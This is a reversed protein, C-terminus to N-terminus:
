RWAGAAKGGYRNHLLSPPGWHQGPCTRFIEDGGPNKKINEQVRYKTRVQEKTKITRCKAKTEKSVVCLVFMWAGPPIRVRLGLPRGAVARRRLGGPGQTRWPKSGRGDLRYRTAIGVSSDRGVNFLPVVKWFYFYHTDRYMQRVCIKKWVPTIIDYRYTSHPSIHTTSTLCTM